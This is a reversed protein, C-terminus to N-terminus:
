ADIHNLLELDCLSYAASPVQITSKHDWAQTYVGEMQQLWELSLKWATFYPYYLQRLLDNGPLGQLIQAFNWAGYHNM